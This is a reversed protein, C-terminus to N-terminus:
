CWKVHSISSQELICHTLHYVVLFSLLQSLFQSFIVTVVCPEHNLHSYLIIIICKLIMITVSFIIYISSVNITGSKSATLNIEAQPINITATCTYHGGDSTRLPSFTYDVSITNHALVVTSNPFVIMMTPLAVLGPVVTATCSISHSLGATSSGSFTISVNPAPLDSHILSCM